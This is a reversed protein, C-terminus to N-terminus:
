FEGVPNEDSIRVLYEVTYEDIEDRIFRASGDCMAVQVGGAHRSSFGYPHGNIMPAKLANEFRTAAVALGAYCAQQNSSPAPLTAWFAQSFFTTGTGPDVIDGFIREGILFTNSTGDTIQRMPTDSNRYMVGNQRTLQALPTLAPLQRCSGVVDLNSGDAKDPLQGFYCVLCTTGSGVYNSVALSPIAPTFGGNAAISSSNAEIQDSPCRYGPLETSILDINDVAGGPTGATSQKNFDLQSHLAAQEVYPLIVASWLFNSKREARVPNYDEVWGPAFHNKASHYNQFGLGMQRLNNSCQSRRAAERAAQVAPLLLGVLVGIIAIVVLLEVLTFGTCTPTWARRRHRCYTSFRM